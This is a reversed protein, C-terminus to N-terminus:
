VKTVATVAAGRQIEKGMLDWLESAMGDDSDGRVKLKGESVVSCM